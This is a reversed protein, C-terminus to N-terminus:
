KAHLSSLIELKKTKKKFQSDQLVFQEDSNCATTFKM